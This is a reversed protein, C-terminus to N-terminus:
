QEKENRIHIPGNTLFKKLEPKDQTLAGIFEEPMKEIEAKYTKGEHELTLNGSPEVGVVKFEQTASPPQTNRTENEHPFFTNYGLVGGFIIAAVDATVSFTKGVAMKLHEFREEMMQEQKLEVRRNFEEASLESQKQLEGFDEKM